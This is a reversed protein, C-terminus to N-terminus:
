IITFSRGEMTTDNPLGLMGLIRAAETCGDGVALFGLVYLVNVAYDTSREFNDNREVHISTAAPSAAHFLYGCTEENMCQFGLSSAICVTRITAKIPGRCQPCGLEAFAKEVHAVELIVRTHPPKKGAETSEEDSGEDESDEEEETGSVSLDEDEDIVVLEKRKSAGAIDPRGDGGRRTRTV